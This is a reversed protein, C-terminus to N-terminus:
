ATQERELYSIGGERFDDLTYFQKDAVNTIQRRNFGTLESLNEHVVVSRFPLRQKQFTLCSIVVRSAKADNNVGFLYIPKSGPIEYDVVLEHDNTPFARSRIHYAKLQTMVFDNFYEFFMSKMTERSLIDINSVKSILQAYQYIAEQAQSGTTHILLEGDDLEGFNSKVINQLVKIKNPTSIDFAYSVRMLTNGFDRIIIEDEKIELYISFMDGDEHFFPAYLRYINKQIQELGSKKGFAGQLSTQIDMLIM